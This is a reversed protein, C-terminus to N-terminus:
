WFVCIIFLSRFVIRVLCVCWLLMVIGWCCVCLIVFLSVVGLSCVRFVLIFCM